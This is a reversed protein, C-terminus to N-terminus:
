IEFEREDNRWFGTIIKHSNKYKMTGKGHKEGEKFHGIFSDGNEYIIEGKGEPKEGVFNGVFKMYGEALLM